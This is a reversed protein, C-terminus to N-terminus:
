GSCCSLLHCAAPTATALAPRAAQQWVAAAPYAQPSSCGAPTAPRWRSCALLSPLCYITCRRSLIHAVDYVLVMRIRGRSSVVLTCAYCLCTGCGAPVGRGVSWGVKHREQLMDAVHSYGEALQRVAGGLAGVCGPLDAEVSPMGRLQEAAAQMAAGLAAATPEQGEAAVGKLAAQLHGLAPACAAVAATQAAALRSAAEQSSSSRQEMAAAMAARCHCFLWAFLGCDLYDFAVSQDQLSRVVGWMGAFVCWQLARPLATSVCRMEAIREDKAALEERAEGADRSAAEAAAEAQALQGELAAAAGQWKAADDAATAAKAAAAALESRCADLATEAAALAARAAEM